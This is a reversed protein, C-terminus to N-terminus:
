FVALILAAVLPVGASVLILLRRAARQRARPEDTALARRMQSTVAVFYAAFLALVVATM